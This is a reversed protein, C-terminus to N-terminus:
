LGHKAWFSKQEAQYEALPRGKGADLDALSENVVARLEDDVTGMELLLALRDELAAVAFDNREDEPLASLTAALNDPLTLTITTM